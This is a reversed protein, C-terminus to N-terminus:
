FMVKQAYATEIRKRAIEFYDPDIEIGIFKRQEMGCAVGTSGSGMTFDLVVDGPVTCDRVLKRMLPVPKENPHLLDDPLVRRQQIISRPRKGPFSFKDRTAFLISEHQPAYEGKLDGMGHIVKDWIIQSKVGFNEQLHTYIVQQKDWRYFIYVASTPKTIQHLVGSWGLFPETDNAIKPKRNEETRWASQYDIGYPIDAIVADVQELEPM